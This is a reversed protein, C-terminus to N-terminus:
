MQQLTKIQVILKSYSLLGQVEKEIDENQICLVKSNTKFYKM